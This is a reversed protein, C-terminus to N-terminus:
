DPAYAYCLYYDSGIKLVFESNAWYSSGVWRPEGTGIHYVYMLAESENGVTTTAPLKWLFYAFNGDSNNEIVDETIKDADFVQWGLENKTADSLIYASGYANSIASPTENDEVSPDLYMIDWWWSSDNLILVKDPLPNTCNREAWLNEVYNRNYKVSTGNDLCSVHPEIYSASARFTNRAAETEFVKLHKM